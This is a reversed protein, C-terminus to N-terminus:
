RCWTTSTAPRRHRRLPRAHRRAPRDHARDGRRTLGLRALRAVHVVDATSIRASVPMSGVPESGPCATPRPIPPSWYADARALVEPSRATLRRGAALLDARRGDAAARPRVARRRPGADAPGAPVRRAGIRWRTGDAEVVLDDDTGYTRADFCAPVDRAHCWVFDNLEFTRLARLDDLLYPLPDDLALVRSRIPGVLDVSLVTDWLAAHAEPTAAALDHLELEHGPHGDNWKSHAELLRLRRRAAGM